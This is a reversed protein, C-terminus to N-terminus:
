GEDYEDTRKKSPGADFPQSRHSEFPQSSLHSCEGVQDISTGSSTLSSSLDIADKAKALQPTLAQEAMLSGVWTNFLIPM